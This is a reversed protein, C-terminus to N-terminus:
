RYCQRIAITQQYRANTNRTIAQIQTSARSSGGRSLVGAQEAVVVQTRLGLAHHPRPGRQLVALWEGLTRLRRLRWSREAHRILACTPSPALRVVRSGRTGQAREM